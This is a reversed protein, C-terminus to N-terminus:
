SLNFFSPCLPYFLPIKLPMSVDTDIDRGLLLLANSKDTHFSLGIDAKKADLTVGDFM